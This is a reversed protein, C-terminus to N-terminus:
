NTSKKDEATELLDLGNLCCLKNIMGPGVGLLVRQKGYEVVVLFQKNGLVHTECIKLKNGSNSMGRVFKGQKFFYVVVVGIACLIVLYLLIRKVLSATLDPEDPTISAFQEHSTNTAVAREINEAFLAIGQLLFISCISYFVWRKIM